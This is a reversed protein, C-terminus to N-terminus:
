ILDQFSPELLVPPRERLVCVAAQRLESQGHLVQAEPQQPEDRGLNGIGAQYFTDTRSVGAYFSSRYTYSIRANFMQNEFYGSVNFTNKSTGQLPKGDEASGSAYTYNTQVGFYDGIPQIYNLEVGKVHGNVNTPVSVQYTSFVDHGATNSAQQDKFQINQTGFNIYDSLQMNYVGASVLGRPAFYWELGADFNTSILPKLQPNGGSGTHTLDDLSYSGALASYDPRTMTQSAAFRAIVDDTISFKFNASPLFKDYGHNYTNVYYDGFASGTIPGASTYSSV